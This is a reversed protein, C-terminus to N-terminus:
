LVRELQHAQWSPPAMDPQNRMMTTPKAMGARMALDTADRSPLRPFEGYPDMRKALHTVSRM